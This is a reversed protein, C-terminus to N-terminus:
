RESLEAELKRSNHKFGMENVSKIDYLRGEFLIRYEKSNVAATEPSYRVTFDIRGGEQTYGANTTEEASKGSNSATAWCTFYDRWESVHNGIKDTVTENKQIIIRCRLGSINM